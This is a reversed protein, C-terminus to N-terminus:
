VSPESYADQRSLVESIFINYTHPSGTFSSAFVALFGLVRFIMGPVPGSCHYWATGPETSMEGRFDSRFDLFLHATVANSYSSCAHVGANVVRMVLVVISLMCHNEDTTVIHMASYQFDARWFWYFNTFSLTPKVAAARKECRRLKQAKRKTAHTRKSRRKPLSAGGARLTQRSASAPTRGSGARGPAHGGLAGYHSM